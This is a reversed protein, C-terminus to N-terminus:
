LIVCCSGFEAQPTKKQRVQQLEYSGDGRRVRRGNVQPVLRVLSPPLELQVVPLQLAPLSQSNGVPPGYVANPPPEPM